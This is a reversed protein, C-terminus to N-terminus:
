IIQYTKLSITDDKDFEVGEAELLERQLSSASTWPPLSIRGKHNIVRHWPVSSNDPLNHLAYGVRRAHGPIGAMQAVQGYTAVRGRPIHNVIEYIRSYIPNRASHDGSTRPFLVKNRRSFPVM